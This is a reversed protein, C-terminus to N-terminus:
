ETEYCTIGVNIGLSGLKLLQESTLEFNCELSYKILICLNIDVERKEIAEKFNSILFELMEDLKGDIILFGREAIELKDNESNIMEGAKYRDSIEFNEPVEFSHPDFISGDIIVQCIKKDIM